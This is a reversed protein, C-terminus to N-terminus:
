ELLLLAFYKVFGDKTDLTRLKIGALSATEFVDIGAGEMSPRANGTDSCAVDATCRECISCPGAWYAFAKYFGAKFAEKEAELVKLQLSHAPPEGELLLAHSYDKLLERTKEPPPSNPPCHRSGYRDCGFRCKLDTWDAVRIGAAPIPTVSSFGIERIKFALQQRADTLLSSLSKNERSATILATDTGLALPASTHFGMQRLADLVVTSSFVKGNYTNIFMNLDFLAAKEECHELFFDHIVLLGDTKLSSAANSLIHPLEGDSYAHLVNSLMVIDFRGKDGPWPELINAPLFTVRESLGRKQMFGRTHELVEPLDMVTAKMSPIYDLFGAAIAGSGAGVDLMEGAERMRAFFPLMERVKTRAICEMASIYRGTRASRGALDEEEIACVDKGGAKLCKDLGAWYKVLEKRWLISEGQYEPKGAVLHKGSIATNFYLVDNKHLLGLSCLANLFRTMGVPKCNLASAIEGATKGGTGILTFIGTEVATFLVESYWYGTALDELYQSGASQPDHTLFPISKRKM